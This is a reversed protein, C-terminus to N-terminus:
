PSSRGAHWTALRQGPEHRPEPLLQLALPVAAHRHIRLGQLAPYAGATYDGALFIFPHPTDNKPRPMNPVCLYTAQKEVIVKRWLPTPLTYFRLLQLELQDRWEIQPRGLLNSATSVVFALLGAQGHTHGRDFVFQAPGGTLALMPRPLRLKNSYQIYVTAIAEYRYTDITRTIEDLEAIGSCIKALHQPAVAIIVRDYTSCNHLTNLEIRGGKIQM